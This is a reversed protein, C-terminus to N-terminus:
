GPTPSSTTRAAATSAICCARRAARGRQRRHLPRAGHDAALGTTQSRRCCSRRRLADLDPPQEDDYAFASGAASTSISSRRRHRRQADRRSISAAARHRRSVSRHAFLQSGIHMDLGVLEINPLAARWSARRRLSTTTRFASSTRGQEGTKIYDTRRTSAHGGSERAARRPATVGLEGALRDLLRVERRARPTSRAARRRRAGRALERETKGVGGFIIDDRRSAPACRAICSAARCSTSARASSACCSSCAAIRTRRSRTTFAIRCRRSCRSRARRVPRADDGRQLRVGAHRRRTPSASSRCARATRARRRRASFGPRDTRRPGCRRSPRRAQRVQPLTTPAEASRFEEDPLCAFRRRRRRRSRRRASRARRVLRRLRLRGRGGDARKFRTTAHHARARQEGRPPRAGRRAHRGAHARAADRSTRASRTSRSRGSRARTAVCSCAGPEDDIDRPGLEMRLPVGRLEWEYYKAGPKMGDRTTSTCACVAPIAVSGTASRDRRHPRGGRARPRARRGDQLDARDRARDARAAASRAPRQRRRADDRARRGPADVRGLEHEM